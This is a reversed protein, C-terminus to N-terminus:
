GQLEMKVCDDMFSPDGFKSIIIKRM